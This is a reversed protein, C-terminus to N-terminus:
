APRRGADRDRARWLGHLTSRRIGRRPDALARLLGPRRQRVRGPSAAAAGGRPRRRRLHRQGVQRGARADRAQDDARRRGRDLARGRDLRHLRDERRGPARRPAAGCTARASSSTSSGEPIGAELALEAFRLATLPTLEAPKLVSRTAPRSRRGSSGRPSRLPFNWPVILGVVGLPERVHVGARRSPSRTASCGSPRARLLLPDDRGGHGDRRARRRDAQRRQAGRAARAGRPPVRAHRRARAAARRASRARARAV